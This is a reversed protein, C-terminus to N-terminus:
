GSASPDWASACLRPPFTSHQICFAPHQIHLPPGPKAEEALGRCAATLSAAHPARGVLSHRGIRDGVGGRLAFPHPVRCPQKAVLGNSQQSPLGLSGCSRTGSGRLPSLPGIGWGKPFRSPIPRGARDLPKLCVLPTQGRVRAPSVASFSPPGNEARPCSMSRGVSV